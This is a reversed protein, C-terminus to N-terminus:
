LLTGTAVWGAANRGQETEPGSPIRAVPACMVGQRPSAKALKKPPKKSRLKERWVDFTSRSIGEARCFAAMTRGSAVFRTMIERWDAETRVTRGKSKAEV